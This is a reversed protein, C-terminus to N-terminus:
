IHLGCETKTFGAWRGARADEGLAVARTCHVCGISPYGREHLPNYPVGESRVYAWVEEDSWRVLPNVKCLDHREDHEVARTGERTPGQARRLGTMWATYGQLARGLPAVKRLKCCLDPERSWLAAGHQEEQQALTLEPTIRRLRIPYLDEFRKMLSYTEPFLVGTDLCFVDLPRRAVNAAMHILAVDELGFSSALTLRDGFLDCATAVIDQPALDEWAVAMEAIRHPELTM